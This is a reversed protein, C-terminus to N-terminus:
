LKAFYVEYFQYYYAYLSNFNTIWSAIDDVDDDNKTYLNILMYIQFTINM